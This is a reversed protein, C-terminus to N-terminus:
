GASSAARTRVANGLRYGANKLPTNGRISHCIRSLELRREAYSTRTGM